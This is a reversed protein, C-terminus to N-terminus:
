LTGAPAAGARMPSGAAMPRVRHTIWREAVFSMAPVTGALVVLLTQPLPLRTRFWLDVTVLVYALYLWGHAIAVWAGLGAQDFGYKVIVNFTLLLLLVGTAYALVRYRLLAGSLGADHQPRPQTM